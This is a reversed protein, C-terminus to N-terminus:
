LLFLGNMEATGQEWQMRTSTSIQRLCWTLWAGNTTNRRQDVKRRAEQLGDHDANMPFAVRVFAQM